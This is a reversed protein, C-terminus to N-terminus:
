RTAASQEVSDVVITVADHDVSIFGGDVTLTQQAGSAPEIRVEGAALLSMLPQHGPLIGIEGDVTRAYVGNAEGQWVQRDAAVLQVDLNSM